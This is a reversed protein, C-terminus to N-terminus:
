YYNYKKIIRMIFTCYEIDYKVKMKFFYNRSINICKLKILSQLLKKIDEEEGDTKKFCHALSIDELNPCSEAIKELYKKNIRAKNFDLRTLKPFKVLLPIVTISIDYWSLDVTQLNVARSFITKM